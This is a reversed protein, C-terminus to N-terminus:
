AQTWGGILKAGGGGRRVAVNEGASLSKVLNPILAMHNSAECAAYDKNKGSLIVLM